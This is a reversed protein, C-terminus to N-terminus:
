LVIIKTARRRGASEYREFSVPGGQKLIGSVDKLAFYIEERTDDSILFGFQRETNYFKVKGKM